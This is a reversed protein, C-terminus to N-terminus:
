ASKTDRAYSRKIIIVYAVFATIGILIWQGVYGLHPGSEIEPEPISILPSDSKIVELYFKESTMTGVSNTQGVPLDSPDPEAEPTLRIRATVDNIFDPASLDLNPDPESGAAAVWGLAVTVQGSDTSVNVLSIFGPQGNLIQRRWFKQSNGVVDGSVQVRTYQLPAIESQEFIKNLPLAKASNNVIQFNRAEREQHRSWQWNAAVYALPLVLIVALTLAALQKLNVNLISGRVIQSLREV